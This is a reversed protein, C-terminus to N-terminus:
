NHYILHNNTFIESIFKTGKKLKSNESAPENDVNKVADEDRQETGLSEIKVDGHGTFCFSNNCIANHAKM